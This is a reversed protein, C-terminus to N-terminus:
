PRIIRARRSVSLPLSSPEPLLSVLSSAVWHAIFDGTVFLAIGFYLRFFAQLLDRCEDELVGGIVEVGAAATPIAIRGTGVGIEVVPGGSAIALDRYFEVDGPIGRVTEDYLEPARAYYDNVARPYRRHVVHPPYM